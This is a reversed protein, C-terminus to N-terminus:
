FVGLQATTFPLLTDFNTAGCHQCPGGSVLGLVMSKLAYETSGTVLGYFVRSYFFKQRVKAAANVTARYLFWTISLRIPTNLDDTNHTLELKAAQRLQM